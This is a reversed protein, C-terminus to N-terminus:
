AAREEIEDFPERWREDVMQDIRRLGDTGPVEADLSVTKLAGFMANFRRLFEPARAKIDDAALEGSYYAVLMDGIVDDRVDSSLSRPVVKDIAAYIEEQGLQRKLREGVPTRDVVAKPKPPQRRDAWTLNELKLNTADGDVHAAAFRRSKEGTFASLVMRAVCGLSKTPRGRRKSALGVVMQGDRETLTLIGRRGAVRGFSSVWYRGEFGKVCRWAERPMPEVPAPPRHFPRVRHLGRRGAAIEIAKWTFKSLALEITERSACPYLADLVAFDADTWYKVGKPRPPGRFVKLVHAHAEIARRSQGPFAAKMVDWPAIPYLFALVKDRDATWYHKKGPKGARHGPAAGAKRLKLEKAKTKIAEKTTEPFAALLDPWDTTSWLKRLREEREENWYKVRM